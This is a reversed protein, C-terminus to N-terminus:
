KTQLEQVLAVLDTLKVKMKRREDAIQIGFEEEIFLYMEVISLSDLDYQDSILQHEDLKAGYQQELLISLREQVQKAM